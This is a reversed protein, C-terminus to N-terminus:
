KPLWNAGVRDAESQRRRDRRCFDRPEATAAQDCEVIEIPVLQRPRGFLEGREALARIEGLRGADRGGALLVRRVRAPSRLLLVRVAHIGCAIPATM